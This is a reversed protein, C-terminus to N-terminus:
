EFWIGPPSDIYKKRRSRNSQSSGLPGFYNNACFNSCCNKRKGYNGCGARQCYHAQNLFLGSSKIEDIETALREIFKQNMGTPKEFNLFM